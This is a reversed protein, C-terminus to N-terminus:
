IEASSSSTSSSPPSSSFASSSCDGPGSDNWERDRRAARAVNQLFFGVRALLLVPLSLWHGLTLAVTHLGLHHSLEHALVGSLERATLEEIAFSTVVVLHGGCAFANLEDGPYIAVEPMRIGAAQAQLSVTRLLWAETDSQPQDIVRAGTARKAMWKSLALSIFSGGMGFVACFVLLNWLDLDVGREDLVREVGLLNLAISLVLLIAINTALFLLIRKM